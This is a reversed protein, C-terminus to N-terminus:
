KLDIVCVCVGLCVAVDAEILVVLGEAARGMEREMDIFPFFLM